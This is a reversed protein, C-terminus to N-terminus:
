VVAEQVRQLARFMERNKGETETNFTAVVVSSSLLKRDDNLFKLLKLIKIPLFGLFILPSCPKDYGNVPPIM